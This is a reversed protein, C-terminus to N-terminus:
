AVKQRLGLMGVIGVIVGILYLTPIVEILIAATGTANVDAVASTVTPYLAVGLFIGVIAGVIDMGGLQGKRVANMKNKLGEFM